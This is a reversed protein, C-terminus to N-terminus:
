SPPTEWTIELTYHRPMQYQRRRAASQLALWNAFRTPAFVKVWNKGNQTKNNQTKSNQHLPLLGWGPKGGGGDIPGYPNDLPPGGAGLDALDPPLAARDTPLSSHAKLTLHPYRVPDRQMAALNYAGTEFLIYDAHTHVGTHGLVIKSAKPVVIKQVSQAGAPLILALLTLALLCLATRRKRVSAARSYCPFRWSLM